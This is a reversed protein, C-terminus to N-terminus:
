LRIEGTSSQHAAGSELRPFSLLLETLEGPQSHCVIAGGFATMVRRCFPLGMGTGRGSVKGTFFEDFVRPLVQAPIGSGTDRFRLRNMPEAPETLIVIEGKRASAIAYLANNLLNYIVYSLLVESGFVEFDAGEVRVLRREEERFPYTALADRVCRGVSFRRYDSREEPNEAVNILLLRILMNARDVLSRIMRPSDELLELMDASVASPEVGAPRYGAVLPAVHDEINGALARITALPTSLEHAIHSALAMMAQRRGQLLDQERRKRQHLAIAEQLEERLAGIDWPKLVYRHIEGRNVAAMAEDLDAYATTLLRIIQPYREKVRDLLVVGTEVPMRQDTILVGVRAGERRLVTEAEAVSGATLVPFDKGFALAFYKRSKAEDDVYLVAPSAGARTDDAESAM